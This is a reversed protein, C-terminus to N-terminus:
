QPSTTSQMFMPGGRWRPFGYGNIMVVDIAEPSQAIGERLIADGEAQMRVLIRNMIADPTFSQRSIGKRASESRILDTVSSEVVGRCQETEYRYWGQGTKRGFRGAECLRDAIEVYREDPSRTAAQRKRMAWSIDLGAMDQMAYIGMPFGFDVMAADIEQPLAGDELMYDAEQRYASMIRNGIFGDCVGTPITIKGLRKGLAFGTAITAPAAKEPIVLELLKMVHAPSFFHLGIVRSADTVSAAIINVDLYSTNTALIADPKTVQDLKEFVAQKVAMDEFVAEIVLDADALASYDTAGLLNTQLATLQETSIIGRQASGSLLNNVRALGAALGKDDQEILTVPYQRLLCAAAIGAGMTGGGIIGIHTITKPTVDKIAPLRTASREAFFIHRLAASQPDAKLALFQERERALAEDASLTLANEIATIAALPSQQGRARKSVSAKKATWSEEDGIAIVARQALPTPLPKACQDTAFQRAAAVLGDEIDGEVHEIADILGLALAKDAAYPKGVAIMDLAATPQLLRPLRVTGGAGPILGLNVEPFGLKASADALRYHCGLAVELGGGLATGQIAAVWPKTTSELQRIVDPLHPELPAQDFEKVDAGAIFTRGQCALVVAKIRDDAETQRIADLLGQRIIQSLANIPPHDIWVTAVGDPTNEDTFQLTVSM